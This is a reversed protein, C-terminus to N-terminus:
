RRRRTGGRPGAKARPDISLTLAPIAVAFAFVAAWGLAQGFSVPPRDFPSGAQTPALPEAAQGIWSQPPRALFSRAPM